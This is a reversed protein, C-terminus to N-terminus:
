KKKQNPVDIGAIDRHVLSTFVVLEVHYYQVIYSTNNAEM